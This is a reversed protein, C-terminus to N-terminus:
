AEWSIVFYQKGPEAGWEPNGEGIRIKPNKFVLRRETDDAKPYGLTFVLTDFNRTHKVLEGCTMNYDNTTNVRKDLKKFLESLKDWNEQCVEIGENHCFLITRAVGVISYAILDRQYSIETLENEM